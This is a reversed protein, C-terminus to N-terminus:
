AAAESSIQQAMLPLLCATPFNRYHKETRNQKKKEEGDQVTEWRTWGAQQQEFFSILQQSLLTHKAEEEWHTVQM